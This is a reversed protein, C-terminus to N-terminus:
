SIFLSDTSTYYGPRRRFQNLANSGILDTGAYDLYDLYNAMRSTSGSTGYAKLFIGQNSNSGAAGTDIYGTGKSDGYLRWFNDSIVTSGSLQLRPDAQSGVFGQIKSGDLNLSYQGDELSGSVALANTGTFGIALRFQGTAVDFFVQGVSTGVAGVYTSATPVAVTPTLKNVALAGSGLVVFNDFALEIHSIMSRQKFTPDANRNMDYFLPGGILPPQASAPTVYNVFGYKAADVDHFVLAEIANYNTSGQGFGFDNNQTMLDFPEGRPGAINDVNLDLIAQLVTPVASGSAPAYGLFTNGGTSGQGVGGGDLGTFDYGGGVQGADITAGNRARLGAGHSFADSGAQINYNLNDGELFATGGSVDIGILNSTFTSGVIKASGLLLVGTAGSAGIEAIGNTTGILVNKAAAQVTVGVGDAPTVITVNQVQTMSAATSAVVAVQGKVTGTGNLIVGATNLNVVGAAAVASNNLSGNVTLTGGNVNTTGAYTNLATLTFAGTGNKTLGGTGAILGSYLTTSGDGGTTL